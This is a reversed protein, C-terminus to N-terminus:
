PIIGAEMPSLGPVEVELSQLRLCTVIYEHRLKRMQLTLINIHEMLSMKKSPEYICIVRCVIFM